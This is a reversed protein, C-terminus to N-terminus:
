NVEEMEMEKGREGRAPQSYNGNGMVIIETKEYENESWTGSLVFLKAM